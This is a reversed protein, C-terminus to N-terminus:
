EHLIVGCKRVMDQLEKGRVWVYEDEDLMAGQFGEKEAAPCESGNTFILAESVDKGPAYPIVRYHNMYFQYLFYNQHNSLERTEVVYIDELNFDTQDELAGVLAFSSEVTRFYAKQDVLDYAIANYCYQYMLYGALVLVAPLSKGRRYCICFFLVLVSCLLTAPIYINKEMHLDRINQWAAPLYCELAYTNRCVYPYVRRAWLLQLAWTVATGASAVLSVRDASGSKKSIRAAKHVYALVAMLVPGLYPGMYRMYTTAKMGYKWTGPGLEMAERTQKLWMFSQAGVTGLILLGFYLLIILYNWETEQEAGTRRGDSLASKGSFINLKKITFVRRSYRYFFLIGLILGFILLGGSIVAATNLQGIVINSWPGRNEPKLFDLSFRVKVKTNKLAGNDKAAWILKQIMGIIKRSGLYGAAALPILVKWSLLMKREGILYLIAAVALAIWYIVSRTHLTMAYTLVAMIFFSCCIKRKKDGTKVADCLMLLLAAILWSCFIMAHENYVIMTRTVVMYSCAVSSVLLYIKDTIGYYRSMLRFAILATLSQLLSETILMVRYLVFPNDVFHFLPAFLISFGFGYYNANGVVLSWDKGAFYAASSVTALEDSLTRLPYAMSNLVVRPIFAILFAALQYRYKKIWAVTKM